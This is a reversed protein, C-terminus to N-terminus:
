DLVIYVVYVAMYVFYGQTPVHKLNYALFIKIVTSVGALCAKM